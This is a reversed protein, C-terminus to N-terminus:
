NADNWHKAKHQLQCSDACTVGGTKHRWFQYHWPRVKSHVESPRCWNIQVTDINQKTSCNALTQVHWVVRKTVDFNIIDRASRQTCRQIDVGISKCRILTESQAAIPLLRCMDRKTVDYNIVECTSRQTYRYFRLKPSAFQSQIQFIFMVFKKEIAILFLLFSKDGTWFKLFCQRRQTM